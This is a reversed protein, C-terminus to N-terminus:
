LCPDCIVFRRYRPDALLKLAGYGISITVIPIATTVILLGAAFRWGDSFQASRSRVTAILVIAAIVVVTLPFWLAVTYMELILHVPTDDRFQM